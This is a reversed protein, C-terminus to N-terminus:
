ATLHVARASYDRFNARMRRVPDGAGLSEAAHRVRDKAALGPCAMEFRRRQRVFVRRQEDPSLSYWRELDTDLMDALMAFHGVNRRMFVLVDFAM